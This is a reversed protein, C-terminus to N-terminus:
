KATAQPYLTMDTLKMDANRWRRQGFIFRDIREPAYSHSEEIWIPV